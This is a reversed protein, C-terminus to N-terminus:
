INELRHCSITFRVTDEKPLVYSDAVSVDWYDFILPPCSGLETTWTEGKFLFATGGPRLVRRAELLFKPLPAMARSIIYQCSADNIDAVAGAYVEVNSLNLHSAAIKLFEAKRQDREVLILKKNPLMMAAIIGPFGNGSGFDFIPEDESCLNMFAKIGLYSDAFHKVGARAITSPSVLNIKTNYRSILEFFQIFQDHLDSSIGPILDELNNIDNDM